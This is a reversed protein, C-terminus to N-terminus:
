AKSALTLYHQHLAAVRAKLAVVDQNNNIVDDAMKLKDARAMQSNIINQVQESTVQDRATTRAIQQSPEVDVLLSRNVLSDLGNEFLLPVVWIVYSSTATDTQKLMEERILPHLLSNLWLRQEPESFILERLRSRNLAGSDDLIDAGFHATIASLGATGVDVVERAVIDADILDIGFSAFMNAVTTKGSGIGGTLGIIMQSM